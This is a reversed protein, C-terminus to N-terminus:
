NDVTPSRITGVSTNDVKRAPEKPPETKKPTTAPASQTRLENRGEVLISTTDGSETITIKDGKFQVTGGDKGSKQNVVADRELVTKNTDLYITLKRCNGSVDEREFVVREGTAIMVRKEEDLRLDDCTLNLTEGKIRVNKTLQAWVIEGTKNNLEIRMSGDSNIQGNPGLIERFANKAPDVPEPPAPAEQAEQAAGRLLPFMGLIALMSALAFGPAIKSKKNM